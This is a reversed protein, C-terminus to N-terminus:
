RSWERETLYTSYPPYVDRRMLPTNYTNEGEREADRHSPLTERYVGTGIMCIPKHTGDRRGDREADYSWTYSTRRKMCIVECREGRMCAFKEFRGADLAVEM